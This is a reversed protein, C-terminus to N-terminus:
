PAFAVDDGPGPAEGAGPVTKLSHHAMARDRSEAAVLRDAATPEVPRRESADHGPHPGVARDEDAEEHRHHDVGDDHHDRSQQEAGQDVVRQRRLVVIALQHEHERRRGDHEGEGVGDEGKELPPVRGPHAFAQDVVETDREEIVHM